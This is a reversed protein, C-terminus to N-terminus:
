WRYGVHAGLARAKVSVAPDILVDRLGFTARGEIIVTGRGAPVEIGGGFAVAYDVDELEADFDVRTGGMEQWADTIFSVQPGAYALGRVRASGFRVCALLPLDISRTGSEATEGFEALNFRYWTVQLEPRFSVRRDAGIEVFGGIAGGFGASSELSPQGDISLSSAHVAGKVGFAVDQAAARDAFLCVGLVAVFTSVRM